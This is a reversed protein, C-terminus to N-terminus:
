EEEGVVVVREEERVCFRAGFFSFSSVDLEEERVWFRAGFFFFSSVEVLFFTVGVMVVEEDRITLPERTRVAGFRYEGEGVLVFKGWLRVGFLFSFVEGLVLAVGLFFVVVGLLIM